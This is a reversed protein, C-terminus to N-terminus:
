YDYDKGYDRVWEDVEAHVQHPAPWDDPTAPNGLGHKRPNNFDILDISGHKPHVIETMMGRHHAVYGSPHNIRYMNGEYIPDPVVEGGHPHRGKYHDINRDRYTEAFRDETVRNKELKQHEYDHYGQMQAMGDLLHEGMARGATEAQEERSFGFQEGFNQQGPM